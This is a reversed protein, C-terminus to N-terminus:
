YNYMDIKNYASLFAPKDVSAAADEKMAYQPPGSEFVRQVDGQTVAYNYYKLNAIQMFDKPQKVNPFLYLDGENQRLYNNKLIPNTSASMTQYPFDDIYLTVKVGNESSVSYSFNDELVFTILHWNIPTLSLLNKRTLPNVRNKDLQVQMSTSPDKSTNFEIIMNRYSDGFKILPCKILYESEPADALVIQNNNTLDYLGKQYKKNDGRLLIVLDKYNKDDTDNIKMWFQYTFQAGGNDNISKAVKKFNDAFSNTTNYKKGALTIVSAKGNVIDTKENQKVKNNVMVILADTNLILLTVIYLILVIILGGIVQLTIFLTKNDKIAM